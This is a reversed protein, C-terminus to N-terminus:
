VHARGIQWGYNEPLMWFAPWAGKTNPLKAKIEVKGYTFSFKGKSYVGGTLFQATDAELNDNVIGRLILNGNKQEYLRDDDSMFNNWDSKGRPIKSWKKEDFQGKGNFDDKWILKWKPEKASLLTPIVSIFFLLLIKKDIVM